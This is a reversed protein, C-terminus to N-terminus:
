SLPGWSGGAGFSERLLVLSLCKSAWPAVCLFGVWSDTKLEKLNRRASQCVLLITM